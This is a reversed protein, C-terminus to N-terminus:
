GQHGNSCPVRGHSLLIDKIQTLSASSSLKDIKGLISDVRELYVMLEMMQRRSFYGLTQPEPRIAALACVRNYLEMRGLKRLKTTM